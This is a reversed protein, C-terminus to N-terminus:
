INGVVFFSNIIVIRIIRFLSTQILLEAINLLGFNRIDNKRKTIPTKQYNEVALDVFFKTAMIHNRFDERIAELLKKKTSLRSRKGKNSFKSVNSIM